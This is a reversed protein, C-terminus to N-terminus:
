PKGGAQINATEFQGFSSIKNDMVQIILGENGTDLLYEYRDVTPIPAWLKAGKMGKGKVKVTPEGAFDLLEKLSMGVYINEIIPKLQEKTLYYGTARNNRRRKVTAPPEPHDRVPQPSTTPAPPEDEKEAYETEDETEALAISLKKQRNLHAVIREYRRKIWEERSFRQLASKYVELAPHWLSHKELYIDLRAFPLISIIENRQNRLRFYIELLSKTDDKSLELLLLFAKDNAASGKTWKDVYARAASKGKTQLLINTQLAELELSAGRQHHALEDVITSAARTQGLEILARAYERLIHVCDSKDLDNERICAQTEEIDTILTVEDSPSLAWPLLMHVSHGLLLIAITLLFYWKFM